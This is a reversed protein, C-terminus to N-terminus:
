SIEATEIIFRVSGTWGSSLGSFNNYGADATQLAQVRDLLTELDEGALDALKQIGEEDLLEVGEALEEAGETLLDMGEELLDGAAALEGAGDALEKAGLYLATLGEDLATLGETLSDGGDTLDDFGDLLEGAVTQLSEFTGAEKEDSLFAALVGTQEQMDEILAALEETDLETEPLEPLALGELSETILALVAKEDALMDSLDIGDSIEAVINEIEETDLGSGTLAERAAAEAQARAREQAESEAASLDIEGLLTQLTEMRTETESAWSTMDEVFGELEELTLDSEQLATQLAEVDERLAAAAALVDEAEESAELAALADSFTTLWEALAEIGDTLTEKQQNMEKLADELSDAGEALADVGALYETLSEGLTGAGEALGAAGDTLSASAETLDAMAEALDYGDQLDNVDLDSFFGNTVITATFDLTFDTVEATIEVYEPLEIEETAEYHSLGLGDALGPVAYGLVVLNDDLETVGGNTVSVDDFHDSSLFLVTCALFPVPVEVEEGDIETRVSTLNEYEFRIRVQGSAGALEEPSVEEGELFYQVSVSVPLEGDSRGEYQIDEGHNEWCLVQGQWTFDEDGVTNKVDYLTSRDRITAASGFDQLMVDVTVSEVQGQADASAYVTETKTPVVDEETGQATEGSTETEEAQETGSETQTEVNETGGSLGCAQLLLAMIVLAAMFLLNDIKRRILRKRDM